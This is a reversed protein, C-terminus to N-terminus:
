FNLVDMVELKGDYTLQLGTVVDLKTILSIASSLSFDISNIRKGEKDVARWPEGIGGKDKEVAYNNDMEDIIENPFAIVSKIIKTSFNHMYNKLETRYDIDILVTVKSDSTCEKGKDIPEYQETNMGIEVNDTEEEMGVSKDEGIPTGTLWSDDHSTGSQLNWKKMSETYPSWCCRLFLACKRGHFIKKRQQKM